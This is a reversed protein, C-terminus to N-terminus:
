VSAGVVPARDSRPLAPAHENRGDRAFGRVQELYGGRTAARVRVASWGLETMLKALRRYCGARRNRQPIELRDLVSQTSIRELGDDGIKGRLRGLPMLWPDGTDNALTKAKSTKLAELFSM